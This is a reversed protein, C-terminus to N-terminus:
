YFCSGCLLIDADWVPLLLSNCVWKRQGSHHINSGLFPHICAAVAPARHSYFSGSSLPLPITSQETFESLCKEKQEQFNYVWRYMYGCIQGHLHVHLTSQKLNYTLEKPIWQQFLSTVGYRKPLDCVGLFRLFSTPGRGLNLHIHANKKKLYDWPISSYGLAKWDM